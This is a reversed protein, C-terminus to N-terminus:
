NVSLGSPAGPLLTDITKCETNSPVSEAGTARVATAYYCWEGDPRMESYTGVGANITTLLEGNRFLKIAQLDTLPSGDENQTPDDWTVTVQTDAWVNVGLWALVSLLVASLWRRIRTM